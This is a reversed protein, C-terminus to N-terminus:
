ISNYDIVDIIWTRNRQLPADPDIRGTLPDTHLAMAKGVVCDLSLEIEQQCPNRAMYAGYMNSPFPEM